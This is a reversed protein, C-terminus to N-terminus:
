RLGLYGYHKEHGITTSQDHGPYVVVADPLQALRKLSTKQQTVDGTPFDTRGVSEFFLTDGALLVGSVENYLCISGITHGPTHIVELKTAGVPILDGDNVLTTISPMYVRRFGAIHENWSDEPAIAEDLSHAYLPAGTRELLEGLAGIHDFHRHTLVIGDV